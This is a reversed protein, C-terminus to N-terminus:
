ESEGALSGIQTVLEEVEAVIARDDAQAVVLPLEHKGLLAGFAEVDPLLREHCQPEGLEEVQTRIRELLRVLDTHVLVV